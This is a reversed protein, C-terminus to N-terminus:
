VMAEVKVDKKGKKGRGQHKNEEPVSAIKRLSPVFVGELILSNMAAKRRAEKNQWQRSALLQVFAEVFFGRYFTDLAAIVYLRCGDTNKNPIWYEIDRTRALETRLVDHQFLSKIM